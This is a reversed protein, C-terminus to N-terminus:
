QGQRAGLKQQLDLLKQHESVTPAHKEKPMELKPQGRSQRLKNEAELASMDGHKAALIPLLEHKYADDQQAATRWGGNYAYYGGVGVLLVLVVIGAIILAPPAERRM